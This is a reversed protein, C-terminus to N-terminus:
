EKKERWIEPYKAREEKMREIISEMQNIIYNRAYGSYQEDQKEYQLKRFYNYQEILFDRTNIAENHSKINERIGLNENTLEPLPEYTKVIYESLLHTPNRYRKNYYMKQMEKTIKNFERDAKEQYKNIMTNYKEKKNIYKEYFEAKGNYKHIDLEELDKHEEPFEFDDDELEEVTLNHLYKINDEERDYKRRAKNELIKWHIYSMIHEKVRLNFSITEYKEDEDDSLIRIINNIRLLIDPRNIDNYDNCNSAIEDMLEIIRIYERRAEM